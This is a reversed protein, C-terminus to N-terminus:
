WEGSSTLNRRRQRPYICKILILSLSTGCMLFNIGQTQHGSNLEIPKRKKTARRESIELADEPQGFGRPCRLDFKALREANQDLFARMEPRLRIAKLGWIVASTTVAVLSYPRLLVLTASPQRLFMEMTKIAKSLRICPATKQVFEIREDRTWLPWHNTEIHGFIGVFCPHRPEPFVPPAADM